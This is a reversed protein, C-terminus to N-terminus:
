RTSKMTARISSWSPTSCVSTLRHSPSAYGPTLEGAEDAEDGDSIESVLVLAVAARRDRSDPVQATQPKDEPSFIDEVLQKM